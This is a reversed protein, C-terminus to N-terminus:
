KTDEVWCCNKYKKTSGCPCPNNRGAQKMKPLYRSGLYDCVACLVKGTKSSKIGYRLKCKECRQM